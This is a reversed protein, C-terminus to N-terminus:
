KKASGVKIPVINPTGNTKSHDV